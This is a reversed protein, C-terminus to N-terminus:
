ILRPMTDLAYRLLRLFVSGSLTVAIPLMALLILAKVQFGLMMVNMQPLTRSMFAIGLDTLFLALMVVGGLGFAIVFAGAMYGSLIAIADPRMTASGLPVRELSASWIALLDAPGETSFFIMGAAYAFITGVLPLQSRTTPDVLVALGFGAQIDLARGATLLAAFALQLSLSLAIGLLLEGMATVILGQARFDSQWSEAPHAAILWSALAIALAVRITRPVRLLTFPSTFALTPAIRLAVLLAAVVQDGLTDM